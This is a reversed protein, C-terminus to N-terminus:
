KTAKREARKKPSKGEGGFKGLAVANPNKLKACHILNKPKDCWICIDHSFVHSHKPIDKDSM